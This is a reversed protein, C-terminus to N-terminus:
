RFAASIQCDHATPHHPNEPKAPESARLNGTRNLIRAQTLIRATTLVIWGKVTRIQECEYERVVQGGFGEKFANMGLLRIDTTGSYWGGFDFYRLGREKLTLMAKWHGLCNARHTRNRAAANPVASHPSVVILDQARRKGVFSLHQTLVNGAADQTASVELAAAEILRELWGRDLPASKQAVAAENWRREVGDLIRPDNAQCREWRIQDRQEAEQIKRVTKDDMESLLQAPSKTLDILVTYKPRARAIPGSRQRYYIWDVPADEAAEDFWVEGRTLFRSRYIFM